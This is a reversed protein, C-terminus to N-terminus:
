LIFCAFKLTHQLVWLERNDDEHAKWCGLPPPLQRSRSEIHCFGFHAVTVSLLAFCTVSTSGELHAGYTLQHLAYASM